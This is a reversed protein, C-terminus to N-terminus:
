TTSGRSATTSMVIFKLSGYFLPLKKVLQADVVAHPVDVYYLSMFCRFLSVVLTLTLLNGNGYLCQTDGLSKKSPKSKLRLYLPM